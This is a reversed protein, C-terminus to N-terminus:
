NIEVISSLFVFLAVAIAALLSALISWWKLLKKNARLQQHDQHVVHSWDMQQQNHLYFSQGQGPTMMPIIMSSGRSARPSGEELEPYIKSNPPSNQLNQASLPLSPIQLNQATLPLSSIKSSIKSAAQKMSRIERTDQEQEPTASAEMRSRKTKTM